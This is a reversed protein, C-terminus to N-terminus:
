LKRSPESSAGSLISTDLISLLSANLRWKGDLVKSKGDSLLQVVINPTPLDVILNEILESAKIIDNASLAENWVEFQHNDLIFSVSEQRYSTRINNPDFTM